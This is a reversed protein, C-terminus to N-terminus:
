EGNWLGEFWRVGLGGGVDCSWEGEECVMVKM